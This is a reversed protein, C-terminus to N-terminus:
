KKFKREGAITLMGGDFSVKIEEQKMGPLSAEIDYSKETEYTDVKTSFSNVQGRTTMTDDFFRDLINSFSNPMVDFLPEQYEQLTIM